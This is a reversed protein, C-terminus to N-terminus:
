YRLQLLSENTEAHLVGEDAHFVRAGAVVQTQSRNLREIWHTANKSQGASPGHRWIQGGPRPNDDILVVKQNSEAATVAAAIGAPGGGVVAIDCNLQGVSDM